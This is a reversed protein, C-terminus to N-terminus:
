ASWSATSPHPPTSGSSPLGKPAFEPDVREGFWGEQHRWRLGEHRFIESIRSRKIPIGKEETLYAVLRDLTWSGFPLDLEKPSTLATQIVLGVDKSSYIPPRGNRPGEELGLMGLTNFRGVWCRATKEHISLKTAIEGVLYGENSLLVIQARKVRGAALKRSREMRKLESYEQQTLARIRVPARM